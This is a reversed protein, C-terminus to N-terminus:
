EMFPSNIRTLGSISSNMATSSDDSENGEYNDDDKETGPVLAGFVDCHLRGEAEIAKMVYTSTIESLAVKSEEAMVASGCLYVHTDPRQLVPSLVKRVNSCRIKDSVYEKMKGPERSYVMYCKGLTKNEVFRNMEKHFLAEESSRSGFILYCPGLQEGRLKLHERKMLLGRIPAYRHFFLIGFLHPLM